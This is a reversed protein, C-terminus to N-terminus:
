YSWSFLKVKKEGNIIEKNVEQIDKDERESGRNDSEEM